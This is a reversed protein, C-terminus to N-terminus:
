WIIGESNESAIVPEETKNNEVESVVIDVIENAISDM